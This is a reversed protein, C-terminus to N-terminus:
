EVRGSVRIYRYEEGELSGPGAFLEYDADKSFVLWIKSEDPYFEGIFVFTDDSSDYSAYERELEYIREGIELGDKREIQHTSNVYQYGYKYMVMFMDDPLINEEALVSGVIRNGWPIENLIQEWFPEEVPPNKPTSACGILICLLIGVM